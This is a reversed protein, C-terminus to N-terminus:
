NTSQFQKVREATARIASPTTRHTLVQHQWDQIKKGIIARLNKKEQSGAVNWVDLADTLSLRKVSSQLRTLKADERLNKAQSPTLIADSGAAAQSISSYAQSSAKSDKNQIATRLADELRFKKQHNALAQGELPGSENRGSAKQMALTEAPSLHQKSNVGIAKLLQDTASPPNVQTSPLLGQAPIPVVEKAADLMKQSGSVKRGLADVGTMLEIPTRVLLPNVRNYAFDLPEKIFHLFDGLTSRVSYEKKGDPSLVAFGSEPHFGGNFLKNLVRVFAYQAANYAVLRKLLPKGYPGAVDLVSRGTSELFDPALLIARLASQGSVSRGLLTYNLGGFKNNVQSAAIRGAQEDSLKPNGKLIDAKLNDYLEFKLGTIWGQPGFLRTELFHNINGLGPIQSALSKPGSALGESDLFGSSSPKANAVSVGDRIAAKQPDTLNFYDVPKPKFIERPNMGSELTRNFITNWHFPSFSLLLSKVGSSTKLIAGTIGKPASNDLVNELHAAIDPHVFLPVRAFMANGDSGTGIWKTAKLGVDKYDSFRYSYSGDPNQYVRGTKILEQLQGTAQLKQVDSKPVVSDHPVDPIVTNGVVIGGAASLPAGNDHNGTAIKEALDHRAITANAKEIYDATLAVADKTKPNFGAREADFYSEFSRKRLFDKSGSNSPVPEGDNPNVDEFDYAHHLYNERGGDEPLLGKEQLRTKFDDHIEAIREHLAVEEPTLTQAVRYGQFLKRTRQPDSFDKATEAERHALVFPDGGAERYNAIAERHLVNPVAKEGEKAFQAAQANGVQNESQYDHIANAYDKVGLAKGTPSNAAVDRLDSEVGHTALGAALTSLVLDTSNRKLKDLADSKEKETKAARWDDFDREVTPIAHGISFGQSTLFGLDAVTKAARIIGPAKSATVGAKVLMSEALSSGFSAAALGVNLPNLQNTLWDEAESEIPGAGKRHFTTFIPYSAVAKTKEWAGDKPFDPNPNSELRAPSGEPLAAGMFLDRAQKQAGTWNGHYADVGATLLRPIELLKNKAVNAAGTYISDLFGGKPEQQQTAPGASLQDFIDGTPQAPPSVVPAPSQSPQSKAALSDFIDGEAPPPASSQASLVDFLDM